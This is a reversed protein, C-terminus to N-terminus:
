QTLKDNIKYLLKLYKWVIAKNDASLEVWYHKLKVMLEQSLNSQNGRVMQLEKEFDHNLFFEENEEDINNRYQMAHQRFLEVPKADDVIKLMNFSQKFLKFDKDNPFTDILENMFELFKDNFCKVWKSIETSM